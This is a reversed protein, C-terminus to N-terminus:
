KTQAAKAREVYKQYQPIAIAAMIGIVFVLPVICALIIVGTSNPKTQNGYQNPGVTGPIFWFILGVLPILSLISLWGTTNFDHCRQITLMIMIVFMAIYALVLGIGATFAGLIGGVFAILFSLGVSYGIYRVRGIRGSVSFIEVDSFEAENRVLAPNVKPATYPNVPQNM